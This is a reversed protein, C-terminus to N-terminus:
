LWRSSSTLPMAREDARVHIAHLGCCLVGALPYLVIYSMGALTATDVGLFAHRDGAHLLVTEWEKSIHIGNNVM